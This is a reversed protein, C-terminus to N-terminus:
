CRSLQGLAAAFSRVLCSRDLSQKTTVAALGFAGVEVANVEGVQLKSLGARCGMAPPFSTSNTQAQALAMMSTGKVVNSTADFPIVIPASQVASRFRALNASELGLEAWRHELATSRQSSTAVASSTMNDLVDGATTSSAVLAIQDASPSALSIWSASPVSVTMSAFDFIHGGFLMQFNSNPASTTDGLSTFTRSAAFSRLTTSNSETQFASWLLAQSIWALRNPFTTPSLNPLAITALQSTCSGSSPKLRVYEKMVLALRTANIPSAAFANANADDAVGSLGKALSYNGLSACTGDLQCFSGGWNGKCRCSCASAKVHAIGGNECHCSGITSLDHPRLTVGLVITLIIFLATIVLLLVRFHRSSLLSKTPPHKPSAVLTRWRPVSATPPAPTVTSLWDQTKRRGEIVEKRRKAQRRRAKEGGEGDEDAIRSWSHRSGEADGERSRRGISFRSPSYDNKGASRTRRKMGQASPPSDMGTALRAEVEQARRALLELPM